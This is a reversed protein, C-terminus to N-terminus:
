NEGQYKVSKNSINKMAWLVKSAVIIHLDKGWLHVSTFIILLSFDFFEVMYVQKLPCSATLSLFIKFSHM